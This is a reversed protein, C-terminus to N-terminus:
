AWFPMKYKYRMYLKYSIFDFKSKFRHSSCKDHNLDPFPEIMISVSQRERSHNPCVQYESPSVKM